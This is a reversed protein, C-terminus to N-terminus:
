IEFYVTIFKCTNAMRSDRKPFSQSDPYWYRGWHASHAACVFTILLLTSVLEYSIENKDGYNGTGLYAVGIFLVYVECEVDGPCINECCKIIRTNIACWQKGENEIEVDSIHYLATSCNKGFRNCESLIHAMM